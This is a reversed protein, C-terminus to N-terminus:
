ERQDIPVSHSEFLSHHKSPSCNTSEGVVCGIKSLAVGDGDQVVQLANSFNLVYFFNKKIGLTVVGSAKQEHLTEGWPSYWFYQYVEVGSLALPLGDRDTIYEVHGLERMVNAFRAASRALTARSALLDPHYWYMLRFAPATNDETKHAQASD